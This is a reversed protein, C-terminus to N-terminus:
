WPVDLGFAEEEATSRRGLMRNRHPYRGFRAIVDHHKRAFALMEDDGLRHFLILSQKQDDLDESHQFPMYLFSREPKPLREDFGKDIAAKAIALALPDTSFQDAHGRYMNRPFQDFLIVAAAAKEPSGLFESPHRDRQEQWLEEFRERIEADLAADPSWWQDPRLGFWFDLVDRTWGSM